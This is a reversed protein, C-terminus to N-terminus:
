SALLIVIGAFSIESPCPDRTMFFSVEGYCVISRGVNCWDVGYFQCLGVCVLPITVLNAVAPVHTYWTVTVKLSGNKDASIM